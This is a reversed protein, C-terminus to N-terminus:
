SAGGATAEIIRAYDELRRGMETEPTEEPATPPDTRRARWLGQYHAAERVLAHPERSRPHRAVEKDGHFIRVQDLGVLVEVGQRVLAHPVSYRVTDVEVLCDPAVRRKLRRERVPLAAAPLPRLAPKEQQEFRVRPVQHTTGHVREDAEQCWQALHAELAAFSGFPLGALGNRKVYKVGAETKGKTRARYPQCVQVELERDACFAAFDPLLRARGTSRDRGQVLAGANDILLRRPLGGFHEFAAWLGERWDDQRQALLARVFIRRSFSLVAVFLLVRVLHGAIWVRKEGFDLQMQEGPATEFRVTAAEAARQAQRHPAVAREVTRVSVQTGQQRLLRTVVVANGEAPGQLLRVAEAQQEPSLKRQAPHPQEEAASGGRLYRRVTNRAIGLERAIRKIGWRRRALERLLQVEESELM